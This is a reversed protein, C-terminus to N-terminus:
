KNDIARPRVAIARVTGRYAQRPQFSRHLQHDAADGTPLILPELKMHLRAQEASQRRLRHTLLLPALEARGLRGSNLIKLRNMYLRAQEASQRRLRHALLLPALEARRLRSSNLIELRNM